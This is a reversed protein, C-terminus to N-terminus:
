LTVIANCPNLVATTSLTWTTTPVGVFRGTFSSSPARVSFTSTELLESSMLVWVAVTVDVSFASWSFRM